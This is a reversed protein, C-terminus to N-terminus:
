RTHDGGDAYFTYNARGSVKTRYMAEDAHALLEVERLADDPFVAVGMSPTVHAMGEDLPYPLSISQLLKKCVLAIDERSAIDHLIIVFEDGGLRGFFDDARLCSKMRRGVEVLLQDGAGHGLTDNVEKFHDLDMMVVALRTKHRVARLIDRTLQDNFTARNPLGTLSDHMAMHRIKEQVKMHESINTFTSVYNVVAGLNNRIVSISLWEPYIVGDRRKNWIEGQWFGQETLEQWLKKYFAADQRGSHLIAPTKGLVEDRSYGTILSFAKNVAVIRSEADTILVAEHGMDFLKGLLGLRESEMNKAVEDRVRLELNRNVEILHNKIRARVISAHIPKTLYDIAGLSLGKMEDEAADLATVFVVPIDCTAPDSKLRKCVEYGDMNPMVIDLLILDPPQLAAVKLAQAGSTAISVLYEESLLARLVDINEPTDDVVLLSYRRLPGDGSDPNFEAHQGLANESNMGM